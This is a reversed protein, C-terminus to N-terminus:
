NASRPVMGEPLSVGGIIHLHLHHVTQGADAGTNIITRYGSERVGKAEAIKSVSSLLADYTEAPVDDNLGSYHTRPIVLVHVPAQPALDEFAVVDDNEYVVTAPIDGAAIKCFICDM